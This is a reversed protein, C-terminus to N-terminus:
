LLCILCYMAENLKFHWEKGCSFMTGQFVPWLMHALMVCTCIPITQMHTHQDVTFLSPFCKPNQIIKGRYESCGCLTKNIAWYVTYIESHQRIMTHKAQRPDTRRDRCQFIKWGNLNTHTQTLSQSLCCMHIFLVGVRVRFCMKTRCFSSTVRKINIQKTYVCM